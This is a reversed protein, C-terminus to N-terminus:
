RYAFEYKLLPALDRLLLVDMDLWVGGYLHLLLVRVLDSYSALTDGTLIEDLSQAQRRAQAQLPTARSLELLQNVGLRNVHVNELCKMGRRVIERHAADVDDQTADLWITLVACSQTAVFAQVTLWQQRGM